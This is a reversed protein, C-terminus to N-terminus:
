HRLLSKHVYIVFLNNLRYETMTSRLFTKIRHLSSFSRESTTAPFTFYLKILKDVESLMGKFICSTNMAESITRVTVRTVPSRKSNVQTIMDKVLSLQTKLRDQDFDDKLYSYVLPHFSDTLEGNGAKLLLLKIQKVTQLDDHDFRREIKLM